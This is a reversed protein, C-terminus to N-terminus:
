LVLLHFKLFHKLSCIKVKYWYQVNYITYSTSKQILEYMLEFMIIFNKVSKNKKLICIKVYWYQVYYITYSHSKQIVHLEYM